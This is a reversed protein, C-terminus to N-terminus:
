ILELIYKGGICHMCRKMAINQLVLPIRLSRHTIQKYYMTKTQQKSTNVTTKTSLSIPSNKVRIKTVIHKVSDLLSKIQWIFLHGNIM